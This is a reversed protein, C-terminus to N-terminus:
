LSPFIFLSWHWASSELALRHLCVQFPFYLHTLTIVAWCLLSLIKNCRGTDLGFATFELCSCQWVKSPSLQRQQQQQQQIDSIDSLKVPFYARPWCLLLWSFLWSYSNFYLLSWRSICLSAITKFFWAKCCQAFGDVPAAQLGKTTSSLFLWDIKLEHPVFITTSVLSSCNSLIYLYM